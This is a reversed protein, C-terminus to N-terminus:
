GNGIQSSEQAPNLGRAVDSYYAFLQLPVATVQPYFIEDVTPIKIHVDFIRDNRDSIGVVFAGRAQSEAANNLTEASSRASSVASGPSPTGASLPPM